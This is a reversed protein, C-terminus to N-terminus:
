PGRWDDERAVLEGVGGEDGTEGSCDGGHWAEGMRPQGDM